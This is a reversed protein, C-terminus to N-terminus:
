RNMEGDAVELWGLLFSAFISQIGVMTLTCAPIVQSLTVGPQLAGMGTRLWYTTAYLIGAVGALILALGLAAGWELIWHHFVKTISPEENWLKLMSGLRDAVMGMLMIQNGVLVLMASILATNVSFTIIGIQIPGHLTISLLLIGGFSVFIAAPLRYLWRPAYWLMFRLHRWGDRWSRLHPPHSRGDKRLVVPIEAMKLGRLTAKVIMESAFEMGESLLRLELIRDRRFARIGCHLDRVPCGFLIRGLGSLVPNGIYRHKWPMAGADIRGIFRNGMVLDYGEQLKTLFEPMAGFDYSADSDAIIVFKGSAQEIGGRLDCGYGRQSIAVVRAGCRVAIEQSGDTSGNDAVIVEGLVGQCAIAQQAELICQELTEAENLCPMVVSLEM